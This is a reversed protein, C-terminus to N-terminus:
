RYYFVVSRIGLTNTYKPWVGKPQVLLYYSNKENDVLYPGTAAKQSRVASAKGNTTNTFVDKLGSGTANEYSVLSIYMDEDAYDLFYVRVSDVTVGHPLQVSAALRVGSGADATAIGDGANGNKYGLNLDPHFSTNPITYIGRSILRQQSQAMSVTFTVFLFLLVKM